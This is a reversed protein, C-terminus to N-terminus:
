ETVAVEGMPMIDAVMVSDTIREGDIALPQFNNAYLGVSIMEAENPLSDLYYWEGYLRAVKIENIYLHAHGEGGVPEMGVRQPAFTFNLTQIRANYGGDRLPMVQLDVFPALESTVNLPQSHDHRTGDQHVHISAAMETETETEIETKTQGETEAEPYPSEGDILPTWFDDMLARCAEEGGRVEKEGIVFSYRGLRGEPHWLAVTYTASEPASFYYNDWNWYYRRGFPEFWYLPEDGLPIMMAGHGDAVSVSAPLGAPISGDIGPGMLVMVPAFDEQGDFAPISLSLLVSQGSSAQFTFHDVDTTPYLNGFYAYSITADPVQWPNDATLDAQECYPQHALASSQPLVVLMLLSCLLLILNRQKM